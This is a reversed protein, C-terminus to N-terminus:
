GDLAARRSEEARRRPYCLAAHDACYVGDAAPAGCKCADDIRPEGEIFQCTRFRAKSRMSALWARLTEARLHASYRACQEIFAADGHSSSDAPGYSDLRPLDAMPALLDNRSRLM